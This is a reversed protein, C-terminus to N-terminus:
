GATLEHNRNQVPNKPVLEFSTSSHSNGVPFEPWENLWILEWLLSNWGCKTFPPPNLIIIPFWLGRGSEDLASGKKQLQATNLNTVDDASEELGGEEVKAMLKNVTSFICIVPWTLDAFWLLIQLGIWRAISDNLEMFQHCMQLNHIKNWLCIDVM